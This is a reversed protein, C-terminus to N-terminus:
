TLPSQNQIVVAFAFTILTLLLVFIYPDPLYREVLKVFPKSARNLM